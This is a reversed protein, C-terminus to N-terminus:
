MWKMAVKWYSDKHYFLFTLTCEVMSPLFYYHWSTSLYRAAHEVERYGRESLDPDAWGTFTKNYNWLSEGHRVLILTGPEKAMDPFAIKRVIKFPIRLLQELLPRYPRMMSIYGDEDDESPLTTNRNLRNLLRNALRQRLFRKEVRRKKTILIRSYEGNPLVDSSDIDFANSYIRSKGQIHQRQQCTNQVIKHFVKTSSSTPHRHSHLVLALGRWDQSKLVLFVFVVLRMKSDLSM